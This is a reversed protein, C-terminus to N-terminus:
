MFLGKYLWYEVSQYAIQSTILFYYLINEAAPCEPLELGWDICNSAASVHGFKCFHLLLWM